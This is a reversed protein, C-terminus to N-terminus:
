GSEFSMIVNMCITSEHRIHIETALQYGPISICSFPNEVSNSNRARQLPIGADRNNMMMMITQSSGYLHGAAMKTM